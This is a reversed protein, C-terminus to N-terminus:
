ENKMTAIEKIDFTNGGDESVHKDKFRKSYIQIIWLPIFENESLSSFLKRREIGRKPYQTGAVISVLYYQVILYQMISRLNFLEEEEIERM